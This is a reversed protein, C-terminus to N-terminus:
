RLCARFTRAAPSLYTARYDWTHRWVGARCVAGTAACRRLEFRLARVRARACAPLLRAGTTVRARAQLACACGLPLCAAPRAAFAAAAARLRRPAAFWRAAAGVRSRLTRPAPTWRCVHRAVARPAAGRLACRRLASRRARCLWAGYAVDLPLGVCARVLPSSVALCARCRVAAGFRRVLHVPAVVRVAAPLVCWRSVCAFPACVAFLAFARVVRLIFRLVPVFWFRAFTHPCCHTHLTTIYHTHTHTHTHSWPASAFTHTFAHLPFPCFGCCPYPMPLPPVAVAWWRWRWFTPNAAVPSQPLPTNVPMAPWWHCQCACPVVWGRRPLPCLFRAAPCCKSAAQSKRQKLKVGPDRKAATAAQKENCKTMAMKCISISAVVHPPVYLCLGLSQRSFCLIESCHSPLPVWPQKTIVVTFLHFGFLRM